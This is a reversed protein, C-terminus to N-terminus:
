LKTLPMKLMLINPELSGFNVTDYYFQYLFGGSLAKQSYLAKERESDSTECGSSSLFVPMSAREFRTGSEEIWDVTPCMIKANLIGMFDSQLDGCSLFDLAHDVFTENFWATETIMGVPIKRIEKSAIYAKTDRIMAKMIPVIMRPGTGPSYPEMKPAYFGLLNTYKGMNDIIATSYNYATTDWASQPTPENVFPPVLAALVYIGADAFAEMCKSHELQPNIAEVYIVNTKIQVLKEVARTCATEDILPDTFELTQIVTRKQFRVGRIVFETGIFV